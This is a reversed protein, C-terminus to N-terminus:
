SFDAAADGPAPPAFAPFSSILESVDYAPVTYEYAYYEREIQRFLDPQEEKTVNASRRSRYTEQGAPSIDFFFVYCPVHYQGDASERYRLECGLVSAERQFEAAYADKALGLATEYSLRTALASVDADVAKESGTKVKQWFVRVLNEGGDERGLSVSLTLSDYLFHFAEEEPTKGASYIVYSSFSSADSETHEEYIKREGEIGLLELLASIYKGNIVKDRIQEPRFDGVNEDNVFFALGFADAAASVFVEGDINAAAYFVEPPDNGQAPLIFDCVYELASWSNEPLRTLVDRNTDLARFAIYSAYDAPTDVKTMTERNKGFASLLADLNKYAEERYEPTIKLTAMGDAGTLHYDSFRYLVPAMEPTLALNKEDPIFKGDATPLRWTLKESGDEGGADTESSLTQMLASLAAPLASTQDGEEIVDGNEPLSPKNSGAAFDKLVFASGVALALVAAAVLYRLAPRKKAPAGCEKLCAERIGEFDPLMADVAEKMLEKENM